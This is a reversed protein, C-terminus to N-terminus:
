EYESLYNTNRIIQNVGCGGRGAAVGGTFPLPVLQIASCRNLLNKEPVM